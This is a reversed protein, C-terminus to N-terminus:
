RRRRCRGRRRRPRLLGDCELHTRHRHVAGETVGGPLLRRRRRRQQDGAAPRGVPVAVGRDYGALDVRQSVQSPCEGVVAHGAQAVVFEAGALGADARVRRVGAFEVHRHELILHGGGQAKQGAPGADVLVPEHHDAVAFAGQVGQQCRGRRARDGRHPGHPQQLRLTTADQVVYELLQMGLRVRGDRGSLQGGGLRRTCRAKSLAM